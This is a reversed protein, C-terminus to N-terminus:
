QGNRAALLPAREAGEGTGGDLGGGRRECRRRSLAFCVVAGTLVFRCAGSETVKVCVRAVRALCDGSWSVRGELGAGIGLM